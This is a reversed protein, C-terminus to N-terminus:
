SGRYTSYGYPSLLLPVHHHEEPETVEFRVEVSPYFCPRGSAAYYAATAFGLTFVGAGPAPLGGVRGDADTTEEALVAGGADRLTVGLGAAPRGLAMDLVHTSLSM